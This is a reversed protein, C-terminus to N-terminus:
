GRGRAKEVAKNWGQYRHGQLVSAVLLQAAEESAVPWCPLGADLDACPDLRGRDVSVWRTKQAWWEALIAQAAELLEGYTPGQSPRIQGIVTSV